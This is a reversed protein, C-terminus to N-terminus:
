SSLADLRAQRLLPHQRLRKLAVDAIQKVRQRSLGLRRGIEEYTHTQGDELGYRLKIVTRYNDPLENLAKDIHERLTRQIMEEEPNLISTDEIADLLTVKEESDVPEDLSSVQHPYGLLEEVQTKPMKMFRALEQATPERGLEQTLIERARNLKHLQESIRTPLKVLQSQAQIARIVAQRIWLTACTSFRTGKKWDFRDVAQILGINGEQILDNLPVGYGRYKRAISVVLRLNSEIMIQRAEEGDRIVYIEKPSAIEMYRHSILETLYGPRREASMKKWDKESVGLQRAIEDLRELPLKKLANKLVLLYDDFTESEKWKRLKIGFEKEVYRKLLHQRTRTAAEMRKALQQEQEKDLLPRRRLERAWAAMADEVAAHAEEEALEEPTVTLEEPLDPIGGEEFWYEEWDERIPELPEEEEEIEELTPELALEEEHEPMLLSEELPLPEILEVEELWEKTKRSRRKKTKKRSVLAM